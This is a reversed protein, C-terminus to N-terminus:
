YLCSFLHTTPKPGATSANLSMRLSFVLSSAAECRPYSASRWNVPILIAETRVNKYHASTWGGWVHTEQQMRKVFDSLDIEKGHLKLCQQNFIALNQAVMHGQVRRFSDLFRKHSEFEADTEEEFAHDDDKEM